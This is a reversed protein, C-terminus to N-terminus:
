QCHISTIDAYDGDDTLAEVLVSTVRGTEVSQEVRRQADGFMSESIEVTVAATACDPQTLLLWEWCYENACPTGGAEIYAVEVDDVYWSESLVTESAPEGFSASAQEALDAVLPVALLTGQVILGVIAVGAGICLAWFLTGRRRPPEPPPAQFTPPPWSNSPSGPRGGPYGPYGPYGPASRM